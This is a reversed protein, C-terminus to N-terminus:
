DYDKENLKNEVHRLRDSIKVLLKLVAWGVVSAGEIFIFDALARPVCMDQGSELVGKSYLFAFLTGGILGVYAILLIFKELRTRRLEM